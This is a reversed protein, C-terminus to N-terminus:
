LCHLRWFAAMQTSWARCASECAQKKGVTAWRETLGPLSWLLRSRQMKVALATWCSPLM